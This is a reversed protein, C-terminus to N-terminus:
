GTSRKRYYAPVQDVKFGKFGRTKVVLAESTRFVQGIRPIIAVAKLRM